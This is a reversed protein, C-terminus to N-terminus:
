GGPIRVGTANDSSPAADPPPEKHVPGLFMAIRNAERELMAKDLAVLRDFDEQLEREESADGPPDCHRFYDYSLPVQADVMEINGGESATETYVGDADVTGMHVLIYRFLKRGEWRSPRVILNFVACFEKKAAAFDVAHIEQHSRRRKLDFMIFHEM